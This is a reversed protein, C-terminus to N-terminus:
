LFMGVNRPPFSLLSKKINERREYMDTSSNLKLLSLTMASAASEVSVASAVRSITDRDITISIFLFNHIKKRFLWM